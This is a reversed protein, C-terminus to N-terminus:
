RAPTSGYAVTMLEMNHGDPDDFYVGRGGYDHNIEGARQHFPDGWYTIGAAVLRGFAADFEDDDLLFAYHQPQVEPADTDAFDLTVDNSLQMPLFPGWQDGVKVDLIHSLFAAAAAKDRGWIITHNLEISM